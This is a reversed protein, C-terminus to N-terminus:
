IDIQVGLSYDVQALLIKDPSFSNKGDATNLSTVTDLVTKKVKWPMIRVCM